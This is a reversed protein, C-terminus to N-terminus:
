LNGVKGIPIPPSSRKALCGRVDWNEGPLIGGARTRTGGDQDAMGKTTGRIFTTTGRIGMGAGTGSFACDHKEEWPGIALGQTENSM